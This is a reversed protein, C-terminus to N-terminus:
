GSTSFWLFSSWRSVSSSPCSGKGSPTRAL